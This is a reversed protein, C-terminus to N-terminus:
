LEGNMVKERLAMGKKTLRYKQNRSNPKDPITMEIYGRKIAPRLYNKIFYKQRSRQSYPAHRFRSTRDFGFRQFRDYNRQQSTHFARPFM